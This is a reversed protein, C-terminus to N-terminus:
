SVMVRYDDHIHYKRVEATQFDLSPVSDDEETLGGSALTTNRSKRSRRRFSARIGKKMPRAMALSTDASEVGYM